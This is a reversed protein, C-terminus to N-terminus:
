MSWNFPKPDAIKNVKEYDFQSNLDLDSFDFQLFNTHLEKIKIEIPNSRSHFTTLIKDEDATLVIRAYIFSSIRKTQLSWGGNMKRTKYIDM